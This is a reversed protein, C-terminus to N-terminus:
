DSPRVLKLIYLGRLESWYFCCDGIRCSCITSYTNRARPGSQEKGTLRCLCKEEKNNNWEVDLIAVWFYLLSAPLCIRTMPPEEPSYWWLWEGILIELLTCTNSVGDCFGWEFRASWYCNGGRWAASDFGGHIGQLFGIGWGFYWAVAAIKGFWGDFLVEFREELLNPFYVM